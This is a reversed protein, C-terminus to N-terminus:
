MSGGSGGGQEVLNFLYNLEGRAELGLIHTIKSINKFNLIHINIYARPGEQM